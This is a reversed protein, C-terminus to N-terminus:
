PVSELRACACRPLNTVRFPTNIANQMGTQASVLEADGLM